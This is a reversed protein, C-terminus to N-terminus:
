SRGRENNKYKFFCVKKVTVYHNRLLMPSLVPISSELLALAPAPIAIRIQLAPTKFCLFQIYGREHDLETSKLIFQVYSRSTQEQRVLDWHIMLLVFVTYM